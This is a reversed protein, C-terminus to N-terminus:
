ECNYSCFSQGHSAISLWNLFKFLFSKDQTQLYLQDGVKGNLWWDAFLLNKPSSFNRWKVFNKEVTDQLPHYYTTFVVNWGLHRQKVAGFQYSTTSEVIWVRFNPRPSASLNQRGFKTNLVWQNTHWSSKEM